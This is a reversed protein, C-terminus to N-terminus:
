MYRFFEFLIDIDPPMMDEDDSFRDAQEEDDSEDNLLKQYAANIKQFMATAEDKKDEEVKDPHWEKSLKFFSKKLVAHSAGDEVGLVERAEARTLKM